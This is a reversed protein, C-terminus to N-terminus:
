NSGRTAATFNARSTSAAVERGDLFLRVDGARELLSRDYAALEVVLIGSSGGAGGVAGGNAYGRQSRGTNKSNMLAYLNAVGLRNTAEKTMVFEGKHVIGAPDMKAGAGTYGGSDYLSMKMQNGPGAAGASTTVTTKTLYPTVPLAIGFNSFADNIVKKNKEAQSDVQVKPVIPKGDVDLQLENLAADTGVGSSLANNFARLGELGREKLVNNVIAQGLATAAAFRLMSDYGTRGYLDEFRHLEDDTGNVMAQVLQVAQPGMEQLDALIQPSVGRSGLQQINEIFTTQTDGARQFNTLYSDLSFSAGGYAQSWAAEYEKAADEGTAVMKQTLDILGGLDAFKALGKASGETAKRQAESVGESYTNWDDIMSGTTQETNDALASNSDIQKQIAANSGGIAKEVDNAYNKLFPSVQSDAKLNPQQKYIEKLVRESVDGGQKVSEQIIKDWDFLDVDIGMGKSDLVKNIGNFASSPDFLNQFGENMLLQSKVFGLASKGFVYEAEKAANSVDKLGSSGRKSSEEIGFLASSMDNATKRTKDGQPDLKAAASSFFEIGNGGRKADDSMAGLLGNMDTIPNKAKSAEVGVTVLTAAITALTAVIGIAGLGLSLVRTAATLRGVGAVGAATMQSFATGVGQISAALAAAGGVALLLAGLVAGGQVAITGMVQGVDSQSFEEFSRLIDTMGSAFEGVFGSTQKGMSAFLQEFTQGLVQLRAATTSSIKSYQIQLEINDIWGSRADEMTQALLKGSQGASDAAGALRLLVPRDRDGKIGLDNLVKVADGGSAEVGQLGQIMRVFVPAFSETGWAAAFEKSSIGALSAFRELNDGGESVANGINTFIRTTIGRSLEPPVSISALAGALGITQDATFGAYDAMSSIQTGVNAIGSETAISNVGVKLIASALNSFTRETVALGATESDSFFAKFRALVNGAAEATLNTTASLQAVTRTFSEIGSASIGLQSASSAINTLEEFTVPLQTAMVELQRQLVQYGRATAQTTREVNAFAREHSIAAQVGLTAFGTIAAGAVGAGTAVGYLAYRTSNDMQAIKAGMDVVANGVQQFPAVTRAATAGMGAMVANFGTMVPVANRVQAMYAAVTEPKQTFAANAVLPTAARMQRGEAAMQKINLLQQLNHKAAQDANRQEQNELNKLASTYAQVALSNQSVFRGTDVAIFKGAANQAIGFASAVRQQEAALREARQRQLEMSAASQQATANAKADAMQKAAVTAALGAITRELQKSSKEAQQSSLGLDRFTKDGATRLANLANIAGSTDGGIRIEEAVSVM